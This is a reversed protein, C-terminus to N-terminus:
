PTRLRTRLERALLEAAARHGAAKLHGRAFWSNTFGVPSRGRRRFDDFTARFDVCSLHAAACYALVRQEVANQEERFPPVFLFTVRGDYATSLMALETEVPYNYRPTALPNTLKERVGGRFLPPTPSRARFLELRAVGYNVLASHARMRALIRSVRGVHSEPAAVAILNGDREEFHAKSSVFGDDTLDSDNFQIITWVPQLERKLQPALVIYDAPSRAAVGNNLVRVGLISQLRATFVEDDNVQSAETFSDGIALIPPGPAPPAVRIGRADWHSVGSGEDLRRVLTSAQGPGGTTWLLQRLLLEFVGAALLLGAAFPLFTIAFRKM